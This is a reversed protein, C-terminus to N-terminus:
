ENKSAKMELFELNDKPEFDKCYCPRFKPPYSNDDVIVRYECPAFDLVNIDTLKYDGIYIDNYYSHDRIPHNCNRCPENYKHRNIV